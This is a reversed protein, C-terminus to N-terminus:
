KNEEKEEPKREFHMKVVFGAMGTLIFLMTLPQLLSLTTKLAQSPERDWVTLKHDTTYFKGNIFSPTPQEPCILGTCKM